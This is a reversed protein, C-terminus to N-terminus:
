AVDRRRYISGAAATLGAAVVVMVALALTPVETPATTQGVPSLDVLWRPLRLLAGLYLAVVVFGVALWGILPRRLAAALAAIGALVAMAPLQALAAGTLRWVEAPAGTAIGAGLGNGLGAAALLVTTSVLTAAVASLLWAWRSVSAALVPEALGRQEDTHIRLVAAVVFAGTAAALFQTMTTYAGDAGADTLVRALLENGRAADLLSRTMSGFTLGALFLAVGWGIRQGRQLVLNLVFLNPITMARPREGTSTIIGADYERRGECALAVAVLAAALGSLMALPWWRLEVFSRMQQAWAIPSLWSVASGSHEIVDGIGRILAALALGGMAAGTATRSQRLLQATVAALAGFVMATVCIGLSFAASDAVDFGGLILAATMTLALVANTATVLLLAAVTRAHRGVVSSQVLEATGDEEEARTHRIVTLIALISTAIILTLMLENAIMAGLATHHTGFMPGSLMIGAPTQMLEIRALRQEHDPYTMALAAPTYAPLATLLVIWVTLRIRDRRLALRLLTAVGTLSGTATHRGTREIVANM